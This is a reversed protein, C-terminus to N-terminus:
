RSFWFTSEELPDHAVPGGPEVTIRLPRLPSSSAGRWLRDAALAFGLLGHRAVAQRAYLSCSPRHICSRGDIPSIVRAYVLFATGLFSTGPGEVARAPAAAAVADRTVPHRPSSFPGFASGLVLGWGLALPAVM